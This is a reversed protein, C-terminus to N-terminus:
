YVIKRSIVGDPDTGDRNLGIHIYADSISDFVAEFTMDHEADYFTDTHWKCPIFGFIRNTEVRYRVSMNSLKEEVIRKM